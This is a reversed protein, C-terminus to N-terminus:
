ALFGGNLFDIQESTSPFRAGVIIAIALLACIRMTSIAM